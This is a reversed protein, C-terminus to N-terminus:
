PIRVQNGLQEDHGLRRGNLRIKPTFKYRIKIKRECSGTVKISLFSIMCFAKSIRIKKQIRGQSYKKSIKLSLPHPHPSSLSLFM